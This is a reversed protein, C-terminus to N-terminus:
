DWTLPRQLGEPLRTSSDGDATDIQGQALDKAHRLNAGNLNADSLTAGSLNAAILFTGTLNADILEASTLDALTFDACAKSAKRGDECGLDLGSLPASHLYLSGFPKGSLNDIAVQRVFRTNELVEARDAQERALRDQRDAIEASLREQRHALRADWVMAGAFLFIGVVLTVRADRILDDRQTLLWGRVRDLRHRRGARTEEERPAAERGGALASQDQPTVQTSQQDQEPELAASSATSALPQQEKDLGHRAASDDASSM